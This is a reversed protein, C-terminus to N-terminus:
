ENVTESAHSNTEETRQRYYHVYVEQVRQHWGSPNEENERKNDAIFRLMNEKLDKLM